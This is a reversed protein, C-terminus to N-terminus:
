PEEFRCSGSLYCGRLALARAADPDPRQGLLGRRVADGLLACCQGDGIECMREALVAGYQPDAASESNLTSWVVDQCYEFLGSECREKRAALRRLSDRMWWDCAEISGRSCRAQETREGRHPGTARPDEQASAQIAEQERWFSGCLPWDGTACAARAIATRQQFASGQPRQTAALAPERRYVEGVLYAQQRDVYSTGGPGYFTASAQGSLPVSMIVESAQRSDTERSSYWRVIVREGGLSRALALLEPLVGARTGDTETVYVWGIRAYGAGLLTADSETTEEAREAPPFKTGPVPASLSFHVHNACATVGWAIWLLALHEGRRPRM